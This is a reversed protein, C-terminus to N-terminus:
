LERRINGDSFDFPWFLFSRLVTHHGPSLNYEKLLARRMEAGFTAFLSTFFAPSCKFTIITTCPGIFTNIYEAQFYRSLM